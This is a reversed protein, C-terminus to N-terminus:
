KKIIQMTRQSTGQTIRLMYVGPNIRNLHLQKNLVQNNKTTNQQEVKTGTLSYIEFSIAGIYNNDLKINLIDSVPNPYVNTSGMSNIDIGTAGDCKTPIYLDFSQEYDFEGDNAIIVVTFKKDHGELGKNVKLVNKEITFFDADIGPKLRFNVDDNINDDGVFINAVETGAIWDKLVIFNSLGMGTPRENINKVTLKLATEITGAKVRVHLLKIVEYNVEKILKLEKGNIEFWANHEADEGAILEYEYDGGQDVSLTGVKGTKNESVLYNDLEIRALTPNAKDTVKIQVTFENEAGKDDKVKVKIEYTKIESHTFEKRSLLKNNRITFLEKDDNAILAYEFEDSDDDIATFLGILTGPQKGIEIENSTLMVDNPADNVNNAEIVFDKTISVDGKTTTVRVTYFRQKEYNLPIKTELATGNTKFFKNDKAQPLTFTFEDTQVGSLKFDGVKGIKNEDISLNNLKIETPITGTSEGKKITIEKELTGGYIDYAQVRVKYETKFSREFLITSSVLTNGDIIRFDGNDGEHDVLRFHLQDGDPDNGGFEGVVTWQPSKELAKNNNINFDTPAKNDAKTLFRMQAKSYITLEPLDSNTVKCRYMGATATSMKATFDKGESLPIEKGNLEWVYKNKADPLTFNLDFSSGANLTKSSADGFPLQPAYTFKFNPDRDKVPAANIRKKIMNHLRKMEQFNFLNNEMRIFKVKSQIWWLGDGTKEWSGSWKSLKNNNLWVQGAGYANPMLDGGRYRPNFETLQNHDFALLKCFRASAEGHMIDATVSTLKNFSFWFETHLTFIGAPTGLNDWRYVPHDALAGTLNNNSLDCRLITGPRRQVNKPIDMEYAVETVTWYPSTKRELFVKPDKIVWNDGGNQEKLVGLWQKSIKISLDRKMKRQAYASLALFSLLIIIINKKM